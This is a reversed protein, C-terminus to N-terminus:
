PSRRVGSDEGFCDIAILCTLAVFCIGVIKTSLNNINPTDIVLDVVEENFREMEDEPAVEGQGFFKNDSSVGILHHM